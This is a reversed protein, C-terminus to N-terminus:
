GYVKSAVPVCGIGRPPHCGFKAGRIRVGLEGSSRQDTRTQVQEIQYAVFAM